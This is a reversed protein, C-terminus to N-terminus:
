HSFKWLIYICLPESQQWEYIGAQIVVMSNSSFIQSSVNSLGYSERTIEVRAKLLSEETKNQCAAEPFRLHSCNAISIASTFALLLPAIISDTDNSEGTRLAAKDKDITSRQM